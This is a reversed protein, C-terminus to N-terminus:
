SDDVCALEGLLLLEVYLKMVLLIRWDRDTAALAIVVAEKNDIIHDVEKPGAQLISSFLEKGVDLHLLGWSRFQKVIDSLILSDHHYWRNKKNEYM